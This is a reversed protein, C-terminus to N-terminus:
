HSPYDFVHKSVFVDYYVGDLFVGTVIRTQPTEIMRFDSETDPHSDRYSHRRYHKLIEVCNENVFLVELYWTWNIGGQYYVHPKKM